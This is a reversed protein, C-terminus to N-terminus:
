QAEYLFSACAFAEIDVITEAVVGPNHLYSTQTGGELDMVTLEFGVDTTGAAFVWFHGNVACGDLVKVQLEWNAANFFTLLGSEATRATAVRANGTAGAPTTWDASVAFRGQRLCLTTASPECGGPTGYTQGALFAFGDGLTTAPWESHGLGFGIESEVTVGLRELQDVMAPRAAQYNPDQTGYYFRVPPTYDPDALEMVIRFPSGLAFVGSVKSARALAYVVAYAGGASHGAVAIRREDVEVEQRLRELAADVTLEDAGIGFSILDIARPLLLVVGAQDAAPQLQPQWLEPETGSGPFFIVVPLPGDGIQAPLYRLVRTGTEDIQWTQWQATAPSVWIIMLLWLLAPVLGLYRGRNCARSPPRFSQVVPHELLHHNPSPM